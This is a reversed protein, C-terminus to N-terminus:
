PRITVTQAVGDAFTAPDYMDYLRPPLATYTGPTLASIRYVVRRVGSKLERLAFAVMEDRVVQDCWWDEWEWPDLRGRDQAECGAPLRDELMLHSAPAQSRVTLTVEIADGARFTTAPSSRPPGADATVALPGAGALRYERGVALGGSSAPTALDGSVVQELTASYWLNGTGSQTIALSVAGSGLDAGGLSAQVEPAFLDGPGFHRRLIAKGNVAVRAEMDPSLEKAVVMYDCLAYLAFATARTSVWYGGRRREAIWAALGPMRPDEPALACAAYLFAAAPEVESWEEGAHAGVLRGAAFDAWLGELMRRGDDARGTKALALALMARGWGTLKGAHRGAPLALGKAALIAADTRGGLALVFAAWARTDDGMKRNAKAMDALASLGQDLMRETVPFGAKKAELLGFVAYATMWPDSSDYEWWGWGGDDDHQMASLKLLSARVMNPLRRALDPRAGGMAALMRSVAIDPLFCSMTQEVCGYPYAALYDLAGIAAAALSPSLRVTLRATGHVCDQRVELRQDTVGRAVAGGREDVRRRGKPLVPVKLETGDSFSGGRAWATLKAEGLALAVLGREIRESAKPALGRPSSKTWAGQPSADAPAM